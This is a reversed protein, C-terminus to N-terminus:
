HTFRLTSMLLRVYLVFTQWFIYGAIGIKEYTLNVMKEELFHIYWFCLFTNWYSPYLWSTSWIGYYRPTTRGVGRICVVRPSQCVPTFINGPRRKRYCHCWTEKVISVIFNNHKVFDDLVCGLGEIGEWTSWGLTMDWIVMTVRNPPPTPSPTSNVSLHSRPLQWNIDIIYWSLAEKLPM